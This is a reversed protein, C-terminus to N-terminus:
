PKRKTSHTKLYRNLVEPRVGLQVRGNEIVELRPFTNGDILEQTRRVSKGITAAVEKTTLIKLM